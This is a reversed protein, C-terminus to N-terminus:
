PEGTSSSALGGSWGVSADVCGGAKWLPVSYPFRYLIRTKLPTVFGFAPRLRLLAWLCNWGM